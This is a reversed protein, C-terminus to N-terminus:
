YSIIWKGFIEDALENLRELSFNDGQESKMEEIAQAIIDSFGNCKSEKM